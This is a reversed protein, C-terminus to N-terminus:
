TSVDSLFNLINRNFEEPKDLNAFHSAGPIIVWKSHPMNAHTAKVAPMVPDDEGAMILTPVAIKSLQDTISDATILSWVSYAYGVPDCDLYMQKVIDVQESGQKAYSMMNPNSILAAEAVAAMGKNLALDITKKRMELMKPPTPLGSASASAILLLSSVREPHNICFRVGSGAGLSQGGVHAKEIDLHDMLAKLDKAFTQLGYDAKDRPSESKGHGRHDWLILKYQAALAQINPAWFKCNGGLGYTMVLPYGEGHTEYYINIGNIKKIPM